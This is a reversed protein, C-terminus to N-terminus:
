TNEIRWFLPNQPSKLFHGNNTKFSSLVIHLCAGQMTQM